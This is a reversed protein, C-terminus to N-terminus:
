QLNELLQGGLGAIMQAVTQDTLYGTAPLGRDRQFARIAQRTADDFSGNAPGPELGLQALRREVLLRTVDNLNLQQEAQRAAAEAAEREGRGEIRDIRARAQEAFAGEPRADLYRRYAQVTDTASAREWDAADAAEAAARSQAELESLRARADEAFLGEPYRELYTRLGAADGEAGTAAWVARDQAEDALRRREAEAELEAQRAEARSALTDIQAQTLYGTAARGEDRQFREIAARTNPGFLGDIGRPAYDLLTLQRQIRRRAERGLDLAEEARRAERLPDTRIEEIAARAEAVQAAEPHRDIFRRYAEITDDQEAAAFAARAEEARREQEARRADEARAAAEAGATEVARADEPTFVFGEPLYGKAFVDGAEEIAPRLEAGPALAAESMVAALDEQPGYILTVGQPVSAPPSLGPTLGAGLGVAGDREGERLSGLAVVAEGPAGAAIALATDIDLAVGGIDGRNPRGPSAEQLLWTDRGDNVFSGALYILRREGPDTASLFNALGRRMQAVSGAPYRVTQFGAARAEEVLTADEPVGMLLARDASAPLAALPLALLALPIRM